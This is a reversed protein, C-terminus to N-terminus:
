SKREQSHPCGDWHFSRHAEAMDTLYWGRETEILDVSWKGGLYEGARSAMEAVRARAYRPLVCLSEYLKAFDEPLDRFHQGRHVARSPFGEVLAERPWYPHVCVIEPGDVFVRFERCIPMGRFATFFPTTPLMERVAWVNTPLGAIDVTCSWEVLNYVHQGLQGPATVYCTRSWDHKGSGHGTRLFVPYGFEDAAKALEDLFGSVGKVTQGDLMPTLDMGARVIRTEPVPLGAVEILPFWYSLCNKDIDTM